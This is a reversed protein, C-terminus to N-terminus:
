FDALFEALSAQDRRSAASTSLQVGLLCHNAYMVRIPFKLPSTKRRGKLCLMLVARDGVQPSSVGFPIVSLFIQAGSNSLDVTVGQACGGRYFELMCTLQVRKRRERRADQLLM